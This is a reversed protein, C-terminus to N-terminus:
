SLIEQNPSHRRYQLYNRASLALFASALVDHCIPGYKLTSFQGRRRQKILVYTIEEIKVKFDCYTFDIM